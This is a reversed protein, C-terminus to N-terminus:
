DKLNMKISSVALVSFGFGTLQYYICSIINVVGCLSRKRDLIFDSDIHSFIYLIYMSLMTKPIESGVRVPELTAISSSNSRIGKGTCTLYFRHHTGISM